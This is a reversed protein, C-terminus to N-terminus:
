AAVWRGDRIFGHTGCGPCLISPNVTTGNATATVTHGGATLIPAVVKVFEGDPEQEDPWRGCVHEFRPLSAPYHLLAMDEGVVERREFGPTIFGHRSM